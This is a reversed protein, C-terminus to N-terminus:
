PLKNLITVWTAEMEPSEHNSMIKVSTTVAVTLGAMSAFTPVTLLYAVDSSFGMVIGSLITLAMLTWMLDGLKDVMKTNM